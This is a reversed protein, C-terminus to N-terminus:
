LVNGLHRSWWQGINESTIISQAMDSTDIGEEVVIFV